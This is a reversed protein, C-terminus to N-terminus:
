EQLARVLDGEVVLGGRATNILVAGRNLMRLKTMDIVGRTQPTLLLHLSLCDVEPLLDELSAVVSVGVADADKVPTRNWVLVRMGLSTARAALARGVNGYGVIGITMGALERGLLSPWGGARMIRNALAVQRHLGILLGLCLEA